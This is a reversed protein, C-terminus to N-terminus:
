ERERYPHLPVSGFYTENHLVAPDDPHIAAALAHYERAKETQGLRDYCVCLQVLPYFDEYDPVVFGEARYDKPCARAAQYWFIAQEYRGENKNEDGILCLTQPNASGCSLSAFLKERAKEPDTPAYLTYLRLFAGARDAFYANKMTLFEEFTQAAKETYGCDQLERAYYYTERANLRVGKELQARYLRLNRLPDKVRDPLPKHFVTIDAHLVNGHVEICEHVFGSWLFGARNRVIREREYLFGPTGDAAFAAAYKMFVADTKEDLTQKLALLKERNEEDVVDDADLWLIYDGTAKAFSYNRAAAFDDCWACDYVCPTYARAIGRTGDHSGTDVIVIEDCVGAVSDLCRGLVAEEDKVIMCLTLTM